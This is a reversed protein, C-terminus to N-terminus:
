KENMRKKKFPNENEEAKSTSANMMDNCYALHTNHSRDQSPFDDDIDYGDDDDTTENADQKEKKKKVEDLKESESM